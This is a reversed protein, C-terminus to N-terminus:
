FLSGQSTNEVRLRFSKRHHPTPGLRTLADFHEGTPYGVNSAWGFEPFQADLEAMIRDREVKALVSAAAISISRGDGKIVTQQPCAAIPLRQNGDVLLFDPTSGLAKIARNMAELSARLINWRDIEAASCIGVAWDADVKIAHEAANRAEESMQKSDTLGEYTWGQPLVAAAAVVPGALCGRGVED